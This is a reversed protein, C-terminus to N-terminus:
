PCVAYDREAATHRVLDPALLAPRGSRSSRSSPSSASCPWWLLLRALGGLVYGRLLHGVGLFGFWGCLAELIITV